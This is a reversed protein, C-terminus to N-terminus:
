CVNNLSDRAKERFRVCSSLLKYDLKNCRTVGWWGKGMTLYVYMCLRSNSDIHLWVRLLAFM